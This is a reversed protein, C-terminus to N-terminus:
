CFDKKREPAAARHPMTSAVITEIQEFIGRVEKQRSHGGCSGERGHKGKSFIQRCQPHGGSSFLCSRGPIRRRSIARKSNWSTPSHPTRPSSAAFEQSKVEIYNRTTAPNAYKFIPAFIDNATVSRIELANEYM